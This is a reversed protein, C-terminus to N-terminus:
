AVVGRSDSVQGDIVFAQIENISLGELGMDIVKRGSRYYDTNHLISALHVIAQITPTQLSLHNAMDWIPVLSQPVDEYIYRTDLSMPAQIGWYGKANKLAECLTNGYANYTYALWEKLSMVKVGLARAVQIREEDVQEIIKAVAPTIGDIYYRFDGKTNEIRACNLITPIPHLLAGVNNFSTELVSSAPTFEPFVENIKNIFEHNRVAPLAAVKVEEKKSFIKVKGEELARCAFLLTQAEVICVEKLPNHRAIISKFELAGGTRGPNLVIYQDKTVFPAINNAIFKHASAPLVVMIVDVNKIAQEISNTVLNLIGRGVVDGVLDIYGRQKIKKIREISRNYLNVKYGKYALYGAIGQGGHGAGIVAFKLEKFLNGKM